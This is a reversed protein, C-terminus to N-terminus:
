TLSSAILPLLILIYLGAHLLISSLLSGTKMTGRGWYYGVMAGILIFFVLLM